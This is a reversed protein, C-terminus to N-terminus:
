EEPVVFSGTMIVPHVDCRFFYNGPDLPELGYTTTQGGPILDGPSEAGGLRSTASSDTYLTWNHLIAGDNNAFEVTSAIGAEVALCDKDFGSVSAGAPAAIQLETGEEPECEAAPPPVGTPAGPRETPHALALDGSINEAVELNANAADFWALFMIEGDGSVAIAPNTGEEASNVAEPAFEGQSSTALEVRNESTDAWTVFDNGEDDVAIGAGWRGDSEGEAPPGVGDIDTVEWQGGGTSHAHRVNGQGDYYAVHPNGDQDLHMSVGYGGGGPITEQTWEGPEGAGPAGARRALVTRGRDGFAVIPEGDPGVGIASRTAPVAAPGANRLVEDVQWEEGSRAAVRLSGGSYFSVFAAGGRGIAISGGFAPGSVIRESEGFSGGADTSYFLGEPTSWLVHHSGQGDISLSTTVGPVAHGEEDAIETATGVAEEGLAPQPTVSQRTWIGGAQTALMVSPPQPQGAVVPPPIEGEELVPSLLLYSVAPEGEPSIAVSLGRGADYLSDVVQVLLGEQRAVPIGPPETAPDCAAALAALATIAAARTLPRTRSTGPLAAGM